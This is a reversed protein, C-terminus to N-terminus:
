GEKIGESVLISSILAMPMGIGPHTYQGTYWLNPLKRSRHRPRFVATQLLTHSLGLATGRYANFVSSFDRQSFVSCVAAQERIPQQLLQELYSLTRDVFPQRVDDSDDLGSAVPVLVMLTEGGPVTVSPDTRSPCSFYYSPREPWSPRRFIADFHEEWDNEFSLTHHLLGDVPKKLGLYILLASPALTRSSWYRDSYTRLGEPLLDMEAHPYDANIIVHDAEYTNDRTRVGRCRRSGDVLIEEAEQGYVFTAGHERAIREIANVVVGMGGMPYWVGLNFDVHSLISYLAPTNSPSGGLFVMSYSLVKRLRDDQFYRRTYKALNEMVHLKRGEIMTRRNFFDFITRYERFLFENVAVNYEYEAQALYARLREGAGQELREFLRYNEELDSSVDLFDERGFYIRYSPDLRTLSYYDEVKRDLAAFFREFIDPMLYWSPGMDFTYGQERFVMARGGPGCNKEIVTVDCGDRALLAAAALGGFGAGVILIKQTKGM